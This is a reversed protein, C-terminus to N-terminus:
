KHDAPNNIGTGCDLGKDWCATHAPDVPDPQVCQKQACATLAMAVAATLILAKM